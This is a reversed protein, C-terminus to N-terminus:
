LEMRTLYETTDEELRKTETLNFGHKQYFKVARINKELVWLHNAGCHKVAFNLLHKGIGKSHLIPEVFLRKIENGSLQIVGKVCGDDYLYTNKLLEEDLYEDAVSAVQMENFYYEDCKFIPYFNLRYNFVIIEAIRYVDCKTARRINEM